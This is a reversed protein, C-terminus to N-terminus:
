LTYQRYSAKLYGTEGANLNIVVKSKTNAKLYLFSDLNADKSVYDYASSLLNNRKILIKPQMADIILEENEDIYLNEFRITSYVEKTDVNQLSIQPNNMTGFISIRLPLDDFYTNDIINNEVLSRGYAYPYKFPYSKGTTAPRITIANDKRLYKPTGPLFSIPCILTKFQDLEDQQFKQIKGEWYKIEDTDNYELLVKKNMNAQVIRKFQNAKTYANPNLFYLNLTIPTKKERASTFYTTLRTELTTFELEFGLNKPTEVWDLPVRIQEVDFDDVIVLAFKRINKNM